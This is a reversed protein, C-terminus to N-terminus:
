VLFSDVGKTKVPEHSEMAGKYRQIEGELYIVQNADNNDVANNLLAEYEEVKQTYWSIM